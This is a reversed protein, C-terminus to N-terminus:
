VDRKRMRKRIHRASNIAAILCGLAAGHMYLPALYKQLGHIAFTELLAIGEILAGTGLLPTIFGRLLDLERKEREPDARKESDEGDAKM